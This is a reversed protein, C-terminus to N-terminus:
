LAVKERRRRAAERSRAVLEPLPNLLRGIDEARTTPGWSFRVCARAETESMGMALLVHSAEMTHSSCASGSSAAVGAMDLAALLTEADAEEFQVCTINPVRTTGVGVVLIDLVSTLVGYEVARLVDVLRATRAEPEAVAAAVAAGMGVIAPVNETGGRRGREQEGGMLLPALDVGSRCYLAGAGQPGGVKHSSLSLLDVNWERVSIPRTGLAQVADCLMLAGAAHALAAVEAVPQVVGTENNVAMLAVLATDDRIAAGVEAAHVFGKRDPAVRSVEYGERELWEAARLIAPHEVASVVVHRRTSARVAGLLALNDAETAGSTFIVEAPQAGIAAAVQERAAEVALRTRRGAAHLSSPNGFDGALYPAMADRAERSLPATAAWDLYLHDLM